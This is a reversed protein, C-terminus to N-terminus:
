KRNRGIVFAASIFMARLLSRSAMYIFHLITLTWANKFFFHSKLNEAGLVTLLQSAYHKRDSHTLEKTYLSSFYTKEMERRFHSGILKNTDVHQALLKKASEVSYTQWLKDPHSDNGDHVWYYGFIEHCTYLMQEKQLDFLLGVDAYGLLDPDWGGIREIARRRFFSACFKPIDALQMDDSIQILDNNEYHKAALPFHTTPYLINIKPQRGSSLLHEIGGALCGVDGASDGMLSIVHEFREVADVKLLDDDHLVLIWEGQSIGIAQNMNGWMGLNKENQFVCVRDEPLDSVAEVIEPSQDNDFVLIEIKQSCCQALASQIANKLLDFRKYTPIAITLFVPATIRQGFLLKPSDLAVDPM